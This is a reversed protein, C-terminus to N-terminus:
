GNWDEDPPAGSAASHVTRLARPLVNWDEDPALGGSAVPSSSVPLPSGM